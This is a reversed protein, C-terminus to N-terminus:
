QIPRAHGDARGIDAVARLLPEISTVSLEPDATVINVAALVPWGPLPAAIGYAGPNVEAHTVVYGAERVAAVRPPEAARPPGAALAALGGAGRDLPDRNGLRYSFRPGDTPPEAVVTTVAADGVVEVLSATADLQQALRTLVPEAVARLDPRNGTLLTGVTPGVLYRGEDDRAAFGTRHLSVLLRHAISRHLGVAAAVQSTNLGAPHRGLEVLVALGRELTQSGSRETETTSM